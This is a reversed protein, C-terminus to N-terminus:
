KGRREDIERQIARDVEISLESVHEEFPAMRREQTAFMRLAEFADTVSTLSRADTRWTTLVDSDVPFQRTWFDIPPEQAHIEADTCQSVRIAFERGGIPLDFLYRAIEELDRDVADLRGQLHQSLVEAIESHDVEFDRLIREAMASELNGWHHAPLAVYGSELVDGDLFELVGPPAADITHFWTKRHQLLHAILYFYIVLAPNLVDARVQDRHYADNRYRHLIKLCKAFAPELPWDDQEFIFDVLSEFDRDVKKRRTKSVTRPSLERVLAQGKADDPRAHGEVQRLLNGYYNAWTLYTEASSRLLTEASNDLLLLALRGRSVGGDKALRRAEALQVALRDLFSVPGIRGHIPGKLRVGLGRWAITSDSARQHTGASRPGLCSPVSAKIVM